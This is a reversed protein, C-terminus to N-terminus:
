SEKLFHINLVTQTEFCCAHWPFLDTCSIVTSQYSFCTHTHTHGIQPFHISLSRGGGWPFIEGLGEVPSSSIAVNAGGKKQEVGVSRSGMSRENTCREVQRVKMGKSRHMPRQTRVMPFTLCTLVSSSRQLLAAWPERSGQSSGWAVMSRGRPKYSAMRGVIVPQCPHAPFCM